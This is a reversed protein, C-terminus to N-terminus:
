WWPYPLNATSPSIILSFDFILYDAGALLVSVGGGGQARASGSLGNTKLIEGCKLWRVRM